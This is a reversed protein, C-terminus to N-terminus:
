NTRAPAVYAGAQGGFPLRYGYQGKSTPKPNDGQLYGGYAGIVGFVGAYWMALKHQANFFGRAAVYWVVATIVGSILAQYMGSQENTEEDEGHHGHM